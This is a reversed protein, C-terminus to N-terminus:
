KKRLKYYDYAIICPIGVLVLIVFFWETPTYPTAPAPPTLSKISTTVSASPNSKFLWVGVLFLAVLIAGAIALVIAGIILVGLIGRATKNSLVLILLLLAIIYLM